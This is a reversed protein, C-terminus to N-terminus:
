QQAEEYVELTLQQSFTWSYPLSMLTEGQITLLANASTVFAGTTTSMPVNMGHRIASLVQDFLDYMKEKSSGRGILTYHITTRGVGQDFAIDAPLVGDTTLLLTQEGMGQSEEDSIAFGLSQFARLVSYTIDSLSLM